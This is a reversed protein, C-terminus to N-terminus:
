TRVRTRKNHHLHPGRVRATKRHPKKRHKPIPPIELGLWGAVVNYVPNTHAKITM